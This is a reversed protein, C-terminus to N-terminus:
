RQIEEDSISNNTLDVARFACNRGFPELSLFNREAIDRKSLDVLTGGDACIRWSADLLDGALTNVIVNVGRGHTAATIDSAFATTQSSFIRESPVRWQDVM